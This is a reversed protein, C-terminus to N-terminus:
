FENRNEKSSLSEVYEHGNKMADVMQSKVFEEMQEVLTPDKQTKSIFITEITADMVLAFATFLKTLPPVKRKAIEAYIEEASKQASKVNKESDTM